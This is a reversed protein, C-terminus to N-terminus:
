PRAAGSPSRPSVPATTYASSPPAPTSPNPRRGHTRSLSTPTSAPRHPGAPPAPTSPPRQSTTDPTFISWCRQPSTLSLREQPIAYRQGKTKGNQNSNASTTNPLIQFNQYRYSISIGYACESELEGTSQYVAHGPQLHCSARLDQPLLPDGAQDLHRRPVCARSAM